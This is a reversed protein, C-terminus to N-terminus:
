LRWTENAQTCITFRLSQGDHHRLLHFRCGPQIGVPTAITFFEGAATTGPKNM